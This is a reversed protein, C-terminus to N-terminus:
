RCAVIAKFDDGDIAIHDVGFFRRDNREGDMRRVFPVAQHGAQADRDDKDDPLRNANETSVM